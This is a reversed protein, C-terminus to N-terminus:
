KVVDFLFSFDSAPQDGEESLRLTLNVSKKEYLDINFYLMGAMKAGPPIAGVPLADTEADPRRKTPTYPFSSSTQSAFDFEASDQLYYFGVYPYPILYNAEQRTLATVREPELPRYLHQDQDFLMFASLPVTRDAKGTNAVVVYFSTVNNQGTYPGFDLDQVKASVTLDNQGATITQSASDISANPMTRPIVKIGTCGTLFLVGLLLLLQCRKM